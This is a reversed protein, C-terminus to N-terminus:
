RMGEEWRTRLSWGYHVVKFITNSAGIHQKFRMATPTHISKEQSVIINRLKEREREREREGVGHPQQQHQKPQHHHHQSTCDLPPPAESSGQALTPPARLPAVPHCPPPLLRWGSGNSQRVM